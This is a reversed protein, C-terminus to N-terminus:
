KLTEMKRLYYLSGLGIFLHVVLFPILDSFSSVGQKWSILDLVIDTFQKLINCILVAKLTDSNQHNRVLFNLVGLAFLFSGLLRFLSATELSPTWKNQEIIFSPFFLLQCGFIVSIIAVILFFLSRKM